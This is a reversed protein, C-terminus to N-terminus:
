AHQQRARWLSIAQWVNEFAFQDRAPLGTAAFWRLEAVDDSAAPEGSVRVLWHLTLLHREEYRDVFFGLLELPEISLATEERLERVLAATPEEGEEVFGGPTDWLGAGPAAARRALLIRDRDVCLASVAVAFGAWAVYGCRGCAFHGARHEGSAGCRPCFRWGDLFGV